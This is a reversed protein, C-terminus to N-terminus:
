VTFACISTAVLGIVRLPLPSLNIFGGRGAELPTPEQSVTLGTEGGALLRRPFQVENMVRLPPPPVCLSVRLGLSFWNLPFAVPSRPRSLPGPKLRM